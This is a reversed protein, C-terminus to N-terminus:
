MLGRAALREMAIEAKTMSDFRSKKKESLADIFRAAAAWDEKTVNGSVGVLFDANGDEIVRDYMLNIARSANLGERQLVRAARAKKEEDMRGTVMVEAM